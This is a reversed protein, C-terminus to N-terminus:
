AVGDRRGGRLLAPNVEFAKPKRGAGASAPATAPRVLGAEELEKCAADMDAAERLLGGVTRRVERANFVPAGAERLHRSLTVALREAKPLAADGFVREAMPIFYDGVLDGAAGVAEPGIETPAPGTSEGAWWMFQLVMSLRLVHGRAKGVAGAMIGSAGAGKHLAARAFHELVAEAEGSLRVRVPAPEGRESAGMELGALQALATRATESPLSVRSLRFDALAEPWTWLFRAALGDDAGAFAETLRDPQIGGLIGVSLHPVRIPRPHKMRDVTYARGGYCELAFARDAGGGGYRGFGAMWGALEDRTVLLGRPLGAALFCLRETTTDSVVIRGRVPDEPDEAEPPLPPVPRGAGIATAVDKEWREKAAAAVRKAAEHARLADEHGESMRAEINALLDLVVAIAPSKGASPAGVLGTWLIPPESWDAGAKPWRVNGLMAGCVSLLAVAVYDVPASTADAARHAWDAWMPGLANIDFVPPARRGGALITLDPREWSPAEPASATPTYAMPAIVKM